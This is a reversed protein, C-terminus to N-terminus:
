RDKRYLFKHILHHFRQFYSLIFRYILYVRINISEDYKCLKRIMKIPHTWSRIHGLRGMTEKKIIFKSLEIKQAYNIPLGHINLLIHDMLMDIDYNFNKKEIVTNKLPYRTIHICKGRSINYGVFYIQPYLNPRVNKYYSEILGKKRFVLGSMQHGKYMMEYSGKEYIADDTIEDRCKGDNIKNGNGDVVYFNPIITSITKDEIYKMVLYLYRKDIYDDDGLLMVWDTESLNIVTVFNKEASVTEKHQYLKINPNSSYKEKVKLYNESCNDSIVITIREQLNYEDIYELLLNVNKILPGERNYTPICITLKEM